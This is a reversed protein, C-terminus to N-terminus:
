QNSAPWRLGPRWASAKLLFEFTAPRSALEHRFALTADRCSAQLMVLCPHIAEDRSPDVPLSILM